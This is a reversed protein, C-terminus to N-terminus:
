YYIFNIYLYLNNNKIHFYIIEIVNKYFGVGIVVNWTNEKIQEKKPWSIWCTRSNLKTSKVMKIQTLRTSTKRHSSMLPGKRKLKILLFMRPIRSNRRTLWATQTRTSKLSPLMLRKIKDEKEPPFWTWWCLWPM